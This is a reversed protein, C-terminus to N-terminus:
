HLTEDEAFYFQNLLGAFASSGLRECLATSDRVDAFLVAIDVEMGGPPLVDCCRACLNPNKRSPQFNGLRVLWGGWSGFPNHCLKCRPPGPLHRFIRHVRRLPEHGDVLVKQWIALTTADIPAQGMSTGNTSGPGEEVM